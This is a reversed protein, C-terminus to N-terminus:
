KRRLSNIIIQQDNHMQMEFEVISNSEKEYDNINSIWSQYKEKSLNQRHYSKQDEILYSLNQYLVNNELSGEIEQNKLIDIKVLAKLDILDTIPFNIIQKM